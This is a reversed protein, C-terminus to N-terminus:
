SEAVRVNSVSDASDPIFQFENRYILIIGTLDVTNGVVLKEKLATITDADVLYTPNLYIAYEINSDTLTFYYYTDIKTITADKLTVRRSQYNSLATDKNSEASAFDTTADIYNLTVGVDQATKGTKIITCDSSFERHGGYTLATGSVFVETGIPWNTRLEDDTTCENIISTPRYIYYGHGDADQLYLSGKNSSNMGLIGIVYAKIRINAGSWSECASVYDEYTSLSFDVYRGFSTSVPKGNAVYPEGDKNTLTATLMYSVINGYSPTIIITQQNDTITGVTVDTESGQTVNVDWKIDAELGNINISHLVEYTERPNMHKYFEDLFYKAVLSPEDDASPMTSSISKCYAVANEFATKIQAEIDDGTMILCNQLLDGVQNRATSSGNFAPSTFYSDTHDLAVKLSLMAINDGGDATALKNQFSMYVNPVKEGDELIYEGNEDKLYDVKSTDNLSKIVPIYGSALAFDAQFEANTTLYKMFLWTAMLQEDTGTKLMCISPGQSIAKPNTADAQPIAAIGVNFTYSATGYANTVKTPRQHTAVASSGISMYSRSGTTATFLSSTYSGHLEQTTVWGKSYWTQFREVFSRNTENNFLYNEGRASIYNSGLQECMTIFWNSESDYGLPTAAPDITLIQACVYEMSSKCDAPCSEDCWWHTPVQINNETFFTENYYLLETSKSFPLSYM